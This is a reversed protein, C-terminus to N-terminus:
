RLNGYKCVLSEQDAFPERAAAPNAYKEEVRKRQLYCCEDLDKM